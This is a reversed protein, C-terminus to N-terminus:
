AEMLYLLIFSIVLFVDCTGNLNSRKDTIFWDEVGGEERRFDANEKNKAVRTTGLIVVAV